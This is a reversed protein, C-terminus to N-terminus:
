NAPLRKTGRHSGTAEHQTVGGIVLRVRDDTIRAAIFAVDFLTLFERANQFRERARRTPAKASTAAKRLFFDAHERALEHLAAVQILLLQGAGPFCTQSLHAYEPSSVVATRPDADLFEDVLQPSGAFILHTPTLAYAPLYGDIGEIWHVVGSKRRRTRVIAPPGSSQSNHMAALINLGTNLGNELAARLAPRGPTTSDDAALEIALLGNVPPLGTGAKSKTGQTRPVLYIGWNPGLKPLVDDVVDLGLLLGRSVQRISDWRSRPSAAIERNIMKQLSTPSFRGGFALLARRPVKRFFMPSGASQRVFRTWEEPVGTGDYDVVADFVVGQDLRLSVIMSRCRRWLAALVQEAGPRQSGGPFLDDWARPNLYVSAVTKAPLSGAARQYVASELLSKGSSDDGRRASSSARDLDIVRRIMAEHDSVALTRGLRAYYLTETKGPKRGVVRRFFRRGSEGRPSTVPQEARDWSEIAANLVDVSTARTLLVGQAGGRGDAYIAVVVEDGFIEDAFRAFPKGTIAEIGARTRLLKRFERGAKWKQYFSLREFRKFFDSQAFAPWTKAFQSVEVCLGVDATVLRTLPRSDASTQAAAVCPLFLDTLICVWVIRCRM